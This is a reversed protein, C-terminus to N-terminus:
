QSLTPSGVIAFFLVSFFAILTFPLRATATTKGFLTFSAAALYKDLWPSWVWIDDKNTDRGAGFLTVYNKGDTAKPVGFKTINVGLLATEAEDGWLMRDGLNSFLAFGAFLFLVVLLAITKRNETILM